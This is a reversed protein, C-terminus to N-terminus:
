DGYEHMPGEPTRRLAWSLHELVIGATVGVNLSDVSGSMPLRLVADAAALATPSLGPGESGFFCAIRATNPNTIQFARLDTAPPQPSLALLRLGQERLRGLSAPWPELWASPVRLVHGVSVRISKRYFPDACGPSLLVARAGFAAASRFISGINDHNTLDELVVYLGPERVLDAARAPPNRAGIAMLGRHLHFGVLQDLKQPPILYVPTAPDLQALEPQITQLRATTCLLSLTRYPSGVLRKFVIEGEAMFKGFPADPSGVQGPGPASRPLFAAALQRERVHAYDILRPDDLDTVHILNM